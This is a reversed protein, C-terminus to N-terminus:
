LTVKVPDIQLIPAGSDELPLLLAAFPGVRRNAEAASKRFLFCLISELQDRWCTWNHGGDFEKYVVPYGKKKLILHMARNSDLLSGKGLVLDYLGIDLYVSIPKKPSGEVDKIISSGDTVEDIGFAGSQSAVKGFISPYTFALHFSILGGMSAGLVARDERNCSVSYNKEVWPLLEKVTFASYDKGRGYERDREVPDVFVIVIKRIRGSNMLHEAIAALEAKELYSTGDQVLLVPCTEEGKDSYGPPTYVTVRRTNKMITSKFDQTATSGKLPKSPKGSATLVYPRYGPMQFISNGGGASNDGKNPNLPDCVDRGNVKFKYEIRADEPLNELTYSYISTAGIRQMPVTGHWGNLDGFIAVGANDDKGENIYFFTVNRGEIAPCPQKKIATIMAAEIERKEQENKAAKLRENFLRVIDEKQDISRQRAAGQQIFSFLSLVVMSLIALWRMVTTGSIKM